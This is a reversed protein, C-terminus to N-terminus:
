RSPSAAAIEKANLVRDQDADAADFAPARGQLLEEGSIRGDGDADLRLLEGFARDFQSGFQRPRDKSDVYGDSNRDMREFMDARVATFEAWTVQGDGNSDARKLMMTMQGGSQAVAQTAVLLSPAALIITLLISNFPATKTV